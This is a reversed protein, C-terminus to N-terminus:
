FDGKNCLYIKISGDKIDSYYGEIETNCIHFKQDSICDFYDALIDQLPNILNSVDYGYPAIVKYSIFVDEDFNVNSFAERLGAEDAKIKFWHKWKNYKNSCVFRPEGTNYDLVADYLSNKSIPYEEITIYDDDKPQYIQLIQNHEVEKAELEAKLKGIKRDKNDTERVLKETQISQLKIVGNDAVTKIFTNMPNSYDYESSIDTLTKIASDLIEYRIDGKCPKAVNYVEDIVDQLHMLDCGKIYEKTSKGSHINETLYKSKKKIKNWESQTLAGHEQITTEIEVLADKMDHFAEIYKATFESGKKGTLKNAIFECGKETVLYCPQKKNQKNIYTSEVFLNRSDVKPSDKLDEIYGRIDRMLKNHAKGVMEAVEVSTKTIVNENTIINKLEQAM